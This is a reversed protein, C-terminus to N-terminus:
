ISDSDFSLNKSVIEGYMGSNTAKVANAEDTDIHMTLVYSPSVRVKTKCLIASRESEILVKVLENNQVGFIVADEPKMHIHRRVAIMGKLLHIQKDKNRLIVPASGDLDGSDRVEVKVGLTYSDSVSIEIQPENRLPGLLAVNKITGKPGIIDVRENCLFDGPALLEKKVTPEAGKGFLEEFAKQNLHIHRASVDVPIRKKDRNNM